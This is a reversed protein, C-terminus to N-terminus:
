RRPFAEAPSSLVSPNHVLVSLARLPNGREQAIEHVPNVFDADLAGLASHQEMVNLATSRAGLERAEDVGAARVPHRAHFRSLSPGICHRALQPQMGIVLSGRARVNAGSVAEDAASVQELLPQCAELYRVGDATLTIGQSARDFLKAGLSRELGNILKAIAPISVELRRAAGSFSGEEAAAVFYEIARLKDM